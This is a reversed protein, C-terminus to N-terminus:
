YGIFRLLEDERLLTIGLERAEKYADTTEYGDLAVVFTTQVTVKDGITGGYSAVKRKVENLDVRRSALADGALLRDAATPLRGDPFISYVWGSGRIWETDPREAVFADIRSSLEELNKVGDLPIRSPDGGYRIHNHCDIFGPLLLRGGADLSRTRDGRYISVDKNTGVAIIRGDTIALAKARSRDADVTYIEANHIILDADNALSAVSAFVAVFYLLVTLTSRWLTGVQM